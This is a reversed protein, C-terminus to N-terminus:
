PPSIKRATKKPGAQARYKEKLVEYVGDTITGMLVILLVGLVFAKQPNEIAWQTM